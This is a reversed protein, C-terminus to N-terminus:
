REGSGVLFRRLVEGALAEWEHWSSPKPLWDEWAGRLDRQMDGSLLVVRPQGYRMDRALINALETGRMDPLHNDMLVLAPRGGSHGPALRALAEAGSAVTELDVPLSASAFAEAMLLAEADNDEVVLVCFRGRSEVPM